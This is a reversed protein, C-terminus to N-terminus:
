IAVPESLWGKNLSMNKEIQRVPSVNAPTYVRLTYKGKPALLFYRGKEDSVTFNVREGNRNYLAVLSFPLPAGTAKDKVLGFSKLKFGIARLIATFLIIAVPILNVPRPDLAYSTLGFVMGAFFLVNSLSTLINNAGISLIGFYPLPNRLHKLPDMPLDFNATLDNEYVLGGQYIHPYLIQENATPHEASPFTYNSQHAALAIQRGHSSLAEGSVLFGYRGQADTITSELRRKETSLIDVKAFPIPRKTVSDYVSGWPRPTRRWRFFQPIFFFFYSLLNLLPVGAALATLLLITSAALPVVIVARTLNQAVPTKSFERTTRTTSNIAEVIGNGPAEVAPPTPTDSSGVPVPPLVEGPNDTDASPPSSSDPPTSSGGPTSPPSTYTPPTPSIPTVPLSPPIYYGGGGSGGDEEEEPILDFTATASKTGDMTVDCTSVGACDGSWGIFTSGGAATATLTVVTSDAYAESCDVGCNIGAPSSTITGDGAGAKAVTLTQTGPACADTDFTEEDGYDAGFEHSAYARYYYTTACTLGSIDLDYDGTGAVAESVTDDYVGTSIGYEFGRETVPIVGEDEISGELTASVDDINSAPGTTVIPEVQLAPDILTPFFLLHTLWTGVFDWAGFLSGTSSNKFFSSGANTTCGAPDPNDVGTCIYPSSATGDYYSNSFTATVGGGFVAGVNTVSSTGSTLSFDYVGFSNSIGLSDVERGVLGGVYSVSGGADATLSGGAWSMDITAPYGSEGVLGGISEVAYDDSTASIDMFAFSDSIALVDDAYGVLGGIREADDAGAHATISGAAYSNTITGAYYYYGALGGAAIVADASTVEINGRFYSSDVDMVADTQGILGGIGYINDYTSIVSIDGKFHSDNIEGGYEGWGILGGIGYDIYDDTTASLTGEFYSSNIYLADDISGVLGGIGEYIDGTVDITLTGAFYSNEITGGYYLYGALGGVGYEALGGTGYFTGDFYSSSITVIDEAYGVLGGVGDYLGEAADVTMIGEFYSDSITGGYSYWGVLGGVGYDTYSDIDITFNGSFYSTTVNTPEMSEGLLGGVAEVRSQTLIDLDGSFFSDTMEMEAYARGALGGIWDVLGSGGDVIMDGSFSSSSIETGYLDGLLGGIESAINSTVTLNGSVINGSFVVNDSAICGSIGGIYKAAGGTTVTINGTVTNNTITTLNSSVVVYGILGGTGNGLTNSGDSVVDIDSTVGDITAVGAMRGIVGGTSMKGTVSGGITFSHVNAASVYGFLGVDNELPRNILFNSITKSNGDLTGTFPTGATGVPIFGKGNSQPDFGTCDFDNGLQYTASLADKMEQLQTCTTIIYPDGGTGSGAGSFALALNPNWFVCLLLSAFVFIFVPAFKLKNNPLHHKM